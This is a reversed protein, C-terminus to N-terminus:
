QKMLTTNITLISSQSKFYFFFFLKGYASSGHKHMDSEM